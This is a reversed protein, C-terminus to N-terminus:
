KRALRVTVDPQNARKLIVVPRGFKMAAFIEASWLSKVHFVTAAGAHRYRLTEQAGERQIRQSGEYYHFKFM